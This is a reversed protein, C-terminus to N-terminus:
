DFTKEYFVEAGSEDMYGGKIALRKLGHQRCFEEALPIVRKHDFRGYRDSKGTLELHPVDRESIQTDIKLYGGGQPEYSPPLLHKLIVDFHNPVGSVGILLDRNKDRDYLHVFPSRFLRIKESDFREGELDEESLGLGSVEVVGSPGIILDISKGDDGM